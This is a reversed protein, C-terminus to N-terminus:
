AACAAARRRRCKNVKAATRRISGHWDVDYGQPPVLKVDKLGPVRMERYTARRPFWSRGKSTSTMKSRRRKIPKLAERFAESRVDVARKRLATTVLEQVQRLLRQLIKKTM